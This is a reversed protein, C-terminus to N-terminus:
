VPGGTNNISGVIDMFWAGGPTESELDYTLANVRWTKSANPVADSKVQVQSGLRVGPFFLSRVNIGLDAFSPVGIMGTTASILPIQGGRTGSKPWIALVNTESDIQAYFNGAEALAHMQDTATGPLYPNSLTAQVGNNEFTLPPQMSAAITTMMAAVDASGKVSIPPVPARASVGGGQAGITLNVDPADQFNQAANQITGTFVLALGADDDGAYLQITNNRILSIPVGLRSASNMQDPTMGFIRVDAWDFGPTAAKVINASVRYGDLTVTNQGGSGGFNGQGLSIIVRIKRRVFSM